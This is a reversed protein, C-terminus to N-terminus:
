SETQGVASQRDGSLLEAVSRSVNEALMVGVGHMHADGESYTLCGGDELEVSGAGTWRVESVGMIDVSM